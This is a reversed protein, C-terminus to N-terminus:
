MKRASVKNRNLIDKIKQNWFYKRSNKWLSIIKVTISMVYLVMVWGTDAWHQWCSASIKTQTCWLMTVPVDDYQPANSSLNKGDYDSILNQKWGLKFSVIAIFNQVHCSLQTTTGHAFNRLSIIGKLPTISFCIKQWIQIIFFYNMFHAGPCSANEWIAM